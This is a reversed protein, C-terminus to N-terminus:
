VEQAEDTLDSMDRGLAVLEDDGFEGYLRVLEEYQAADGIM